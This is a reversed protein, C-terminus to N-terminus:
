NAAKIESAGIWHYRGNDYRWISPVCPKSGSGTGPSCENPLCIDQFGNHQAQLVVFLTCAGDYGLMGERATLDRWENGIKGILVASCPGHASEHCCFQYEKSGDGNLDVASGYDYNSHSSVECKLKKLLAVAGPPLDKYTVERCTAQIAKSAPPCKFAEDDAAAALYFCASIVIWKLIRRMTRPKQQLAAAVRDAERPADM